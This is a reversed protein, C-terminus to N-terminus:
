FDPHNKLNDAIWRDFKDIMEDSMRGKWQGVNGNRIFEDDPQFEGYVKTECIWKVAKKKNLAPNNKMKAFSLHEMLKKLQLESLQKDYFETTQRIVRPLDQFIIGNETIM